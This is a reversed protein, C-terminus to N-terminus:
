VCWVVGFGVELGAEGQFFLKWEGGGKAIFDAFSGATVVCCSTWISIFVAGVVM